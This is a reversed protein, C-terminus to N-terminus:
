ELAKLAQGLEARYAADADGTRLGLEVSRRLLSAADLLRGLLQARRDELERLRDLGDLLDARRASPEKRAESAALARVITGEDLARLERDIEGLARVTRDVVDVLPAVPQTVMEIEAAAGPARARHEVLRELWVTLDAVRERVDPSTEPSLLAALRAVLPDVAPLAIPAARLRLLPPKADPRARAFSIGLAVFGLLALPVAAAAGGGVAALGALAVTAAGIGRMLRRRRRAKGGHRKVKVGKITLRDELLTAAEWSLDDYLRAPLKILGRAEDKSYLRRDGTMFALSPLPPESVAALVQRVRAVAEHDESLSTLDLSEGDGGHRLQIAAKGCAVCLRLGVPLSAGCAQCAIRAIAGGDAALGRLVDAVERAARPRAEPEEALCREVTRAIAVPIGPVLEALAPLPTPERFLIPMDGYPFTGTLARWLIVGLSYLDCRPDVATRRLQEPAAYPSGELLVSSATRSSLVDVRALGIDTLWLRDAGLVVQAPKLDRVVAGAHHVEALADALRAGLDAVEDVPAPARARLWEELTEGPPDLRLRWPPEADPARPDPDPGIAVIPAVSAAALARLREADAVYRRRLSPDAALEPLLSARVAPRGDDLVVRWRLENGIRTPGDVVRHSV